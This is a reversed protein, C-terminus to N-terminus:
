LEEEATNKPRIQSNMRLMSALMSEAKEDNFLHKERKINAEVVIQEEQGDVLLFRDKDLLLLSYQHGECVVPQYWSIQDFHGLYRCNLERHFRFQKTNMEYM